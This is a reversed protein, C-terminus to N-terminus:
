RHSDARPSKPAQFGALDDAWGEVGNDCEIYTAPPQEKAIVRTRRCKTGPGVVFEKIGHARGTAPDRITAGYVKVPAVVAYETFDLIYGTFLANAGLLVACAILALIIPIKVYKM